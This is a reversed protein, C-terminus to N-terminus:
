ILPLKVEFISDTSNVIIDQGIAGVYQKSINKLGVKTSDSSSTKPQMNNRVVIYGEETSITIHLPQEARVINHKFANEILVQLSCQVVYRSKTSSEISKEVTFSNPFRVELLDTYKDIFSLEEHLLVLHENENQLMYRYLAALKRVYESAEATKQEEILGNLINLSNFLFHPDVQQKLINYQFQALRRKEQEKEIRTRTQYVYSILVMVVYIILNAIIVVSFIQVFAINNFPTETGFPLNYGIILTTISAIIVTEIILGTVYGLPASLSEFRSHVILYIINSCILTIIALSNGLLLKLSTNVADESLINGFVKTYIIRILLLVGLMLIMPLIQPMWLTTGQRNGGITNFLLLVGFGIIETTVFSTVAHLAADPIFNTLLEAGYTGIIFGLINGAIVSAAIVGLGQGRRIAIIGIMSVTAVTLILEDSVNLWGCLLVIVAHIVAFIHIIGSCRLSKMTFKTFCNLNLIFNDIVCVIQLNKMLEVNYKTRFDSVM